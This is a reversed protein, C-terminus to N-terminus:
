QPKNQVPVHKSVIAFFQAFIQIYVLIQCYLSDCFNQVIFLMNSKQVRLYIYPQTQMQFSDYDCFGLYQQSFIYM